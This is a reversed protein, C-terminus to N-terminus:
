GGCGGITVKVEAQTQYAKGDSMEAIVVINQTKALRMRTSAQAVGSAPSFRFSAVGPRPNGEALVHVASVYNDATMPSDVSVGLPVTNGNEAIQPLDLSILKAGDAIEKDGMLAQIAEDMTKPEEAGLAGGMPLAGAMAVASGAALTVVFQRRSWGKATKEYIM